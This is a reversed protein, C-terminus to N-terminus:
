IDAVFAGQHLVSYYNVNLKKCEEIIKKAKWLPNSSDIILLKFEFHKKVDEIRQLNNGSIVLYDLRLKNESNNKYNLKDKIVGIKKDYFRIINNKVMLVHNKIEANTQYITQTNETGLAWWNHIVHFMMKSKDDYLQKSSLYYNNKGDIFDFASEKPISYVIFKKQTNLKYREYL